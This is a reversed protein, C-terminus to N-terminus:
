GRKGFEKGNFKEVKVKFVKVNLVAPRSFMFDGKAYQGMIIKLADVKQDYDEIFEVEGYALVSRYAMSYSCAVKENQKYLRHDASFSIAVGPHINLIELKKGKNDGHFYIIGNRYGFNMPLVYPFNNEDVMALNCTDCKGIVDEIFELSDNRIAKM